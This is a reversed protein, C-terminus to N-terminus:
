FGRERKQRSQRVIKRNFSKHLFIKKQPTGWHARKKERTLKKWKKMKTKKKLKKVHKEKKGKNKKKM